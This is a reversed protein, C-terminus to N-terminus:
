PKLTPPEATLGLATANQHVVDVAITDSITDVGSGLDADAEVLVQSTGASDPSIITCSKGDAAVTLTAEGSVVSWNPVGDLDVPKGKPTVPALKVLVQQETTLKITLPMTNKKGKLTVLGVSFRFEPHGVSKGQKYGRRFAVVLLDYVFSPLKLCM